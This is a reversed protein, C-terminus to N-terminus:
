RVAKKIAMPMSTSLNSPRLSSEYSHWTMVYGGDLLETIRPQYNSDTSVEFDIEESIAEGSKNFKQGLIEDPSGAGEPYSSWSAIFTDDDFVTISVGFQSEETTSNLQYESGIKNGEADFHQAFIGYDDGDQDYSQWAVVYSGDSFYANTPIWQASELHTNVVTAESEKLDTPGYVDVNYSHAHSLVETGAHQISVPVSKDADSALDAGSVSITFAGGAAVDDSTITHSYTNGNVVVNVEDGEVAIAYHGTIDVTNGSEEINITNDDTIPDVTLFSEHDISYSTPTSVTHQDGADNTAVLKATLTTSDLMDSVAVNTTFNGQADVNASGVQENGIWLTVTDGSSFAGSAVGIVPINGSTLDGDGITFDSGALSSVSIGVENDAVTITGKGADTFADEGEVRANISFTETDEFTLDESTNFRVEFADNGPPVEIFVGSSLNGTFDKWEGNEFRVSYGTNSYDGDSAKASGSQLNIEVRTTDSSTRSLNITIPATDGETVVVDSVGSVVPVDDDDNVTIDAATKWVESNTSAAKVAAKLAFIETGEYLSDDNNLTTKIQVDKHESPIVIEVIGDVADEMNVTGLETQGDASLLTFVGNTDDVFDGKNGHNNIDLRLTTDTASANNLNVSWSLDVDDSETVVTNAPTITEVAPTVENDILYVTDSVVWDANTGEVKANLIISENGEYLSDEKPQAYVRVSSIDAPLDWTIPQNPETITVTQANEADTYIHLVGTFDEGFTAQQSPDFQLTIETPSDSANNVNLTWGPWGNGDENGDHIKTLSTVEPAVEDDTLTIDAASKWIGSGKTATKLTFTETGEYVVDNVLTTKVVVDKHEPPIVIDVIGNVADAMNVTGLATQGDASWLTFTGNTDEQFDGKNGLNNIDLRLTTSTASANNLSVSWSLDVNDGETVATDAPTVSVVVPTAENDILYATESVM